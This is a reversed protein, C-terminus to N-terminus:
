VVTQHVDGRQHHRITGPRCATIVFKLVTFQASYDLLPAVPDGISDRYLVWGLTVGMIGYTFFM